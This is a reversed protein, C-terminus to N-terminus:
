FICVVLYLIFLLLVKQIACPVINLIKNYDIISFFRFSFLYIHIQMASDSQQVGSVCCQLNVINWYFKKKFFAKNTFFAWIRGLRWCTMTTVDFSVSWLYWLLHLWSSFTEFITLIVLIHCVSMFHAFTTPFIAGMSKSLAPTGCVQLKYFICYRCLVIFYARGTNAFIFSSLCNLMWKLVNFVSSFM